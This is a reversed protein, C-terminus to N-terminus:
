FDERPWEDRETDAIAPSGAAAVQLSGAAAESSEHGTESDSRSRAAAVDLSLDRTIRRGAPNPAAHAQWQQPIERNRSRSCGFSAGGTAASGGGAGGRSTRIRQSTFLPQAAHGRSHAAAPPKCAGRLPGTLTGGAGGGFAYQPGGYGYQPSHFHFGTCILECISQCNHKRFENLWMSWYLCWLHQEAEFQTKREIIRNAM